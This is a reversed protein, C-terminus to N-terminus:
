KAKIWGKPIPLFSNELFDVAKGARSRIATGAANRLPRLVKLIEQVRQPYRRGLVCLGSITWSLVFASSDQLYTLLADIIQNHNADDALDTLLIVLHWRVMPLPDDAAQDKLRGLHMSFWDPHVRAVKELAHAARGRIVDEKFNL